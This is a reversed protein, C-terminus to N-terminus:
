VILSNSNLSMLSGCQQEKMVMFVCVTRSGWISVVAGCKSEEAALFLGLLNM